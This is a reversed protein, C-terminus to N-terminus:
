LSGASTTYQLRSDPSGEEPDGYKPASEPYERINQAYKEHLKAEEEWQVHDYTPQRTQIRRLISQNEATIRQLERKRQEKNLSHGHKISDNKNDLTDHQMIFSMKELLIRNEREITAYREEKMQEKKLNKRLHAPRTPESNDICSKITNLKKKHISQCRSYFKGDTHKNLTPLAKRGRDM